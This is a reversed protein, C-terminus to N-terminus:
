IDGEYDLTNLAYQLSIKDKEILNQISMQLTHMGQARSTQLVNIIQDVKENRILNAVSPQNVLLETAAVRGTEDRNPLLRQSVIGVLVLSLQIRVQAQQHPPFADIIRNITQAASNTHLTALVLHGTEAATLATSITEYDRMEGVLIIDPDQRLAARLGNSFSNTDFGVERQNVISKEHKHIYEIPDELTVIHKAENKNVFDLMAALTTSKGSGTPGTVLFLGHSKLALQQLVDPLDLQQLTPIKNPIVRAALSIKKRQRFVNMRYRSIGQLDFSFDLEGKQNFIDLNEDPIISKVLELTDSSTLPTDGIPKLVGNIRMIPPSDVTIHLDSAGAFYAQKLLDEIKNGM